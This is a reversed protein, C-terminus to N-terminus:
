FAFFLTVRRLAFSNLPQVGIGLDAKEVGVSETGDMEQGADVYDSSGEESTAPNWSVLPPVLSRKGSRM